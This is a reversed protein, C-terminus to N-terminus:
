EAHAIANVDVNALSPLLELRYIKSGATLAASFTVTQFTTSNVATSTGATTGDSVNRLRATVTGSRARMRVTVTVTTGGIAVTDITVQHGPDGGTDADIPIWDPGSSQVWSIASGGLFYVRRGAASAGGGSVVTPAGGGGWQQYVDRWGPQYVSGEIATVTRELRDVFGVDVAVIEAILFTNNVNRTPLNITQIQGPALGKDHTPYLVVKPVPLSEALLAAALDAAAAADEVDPARVLIEWLASAPGGNNANVRTLDHNYLVHVSNAYGTRTPTVTIDGIAHGDGAAINFPAARTTPDYVRLLKYYDVEWVWNGALSAVSNLAEILTTCFLRVSSLSPGTVQDPDLTVGYPTLYDDLAQLAALLTGAPITINLVRRDAYTNFDQCEISTTIPTVGYGGLGRESLTMVLGGFIRRGIQWDSETVIWGQVEDVLVVLTTGSYSTIKGEMWGTPAVTRAIRAREGAMFHLGAQTTLTKSGMGMTLETTSTGENEVLIVEDDLAPRYSADVSVIEATLTDRGNATASLSFGPQPGIVTDNNIILFYGM